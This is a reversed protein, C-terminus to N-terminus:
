SVSTYFTLIFLMIESSWKTNLKFHIKKKLLNKLIIFCIIISNELFRTKGVRVVQMHLDNSVLLQRYCLILIYIQAYFMLIDFFNKIKSNTDSRFISKVCNLVERFKIFILFTNSEVCTLVITLRILDRIFELAHLHM